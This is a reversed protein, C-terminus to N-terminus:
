NKTSSVEGCRQELFLIITGVVENLYGELTIAELFLFSLSNVARRIETFDRRQGLHLSAM